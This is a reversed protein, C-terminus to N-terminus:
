GQSMSIRHLYLIDIGDVGVAGKRARRKRKRGRKRTNERLKESEREKARSSAPIKNEGVMSSWYVIM